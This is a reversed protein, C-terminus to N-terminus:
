GTTPDRLDGWNPLAEPLMHVFAESLPKSFLETLTTLHWKSIAPTSWLGDFLM